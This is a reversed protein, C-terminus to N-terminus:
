QRRGQKDRVLFRVEKNRNRTSLTDKKKEAAKLM